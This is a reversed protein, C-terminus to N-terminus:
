QNQTSHMLNSCDKCKLSCKETLMLDISDVKLTTDKNKHALVSYMYLDIKQKFRTESWTLESCKKLDIELKSFIFDCDYIFQVGLENLQKRIFPFNLDVAILVPIDIYNEQIQKPSIVDIENIKKGWRHMNNDSMAIVNINLNKLATLTILGCNGTGFIIVGKKNKLENLTKEPNEVPYPSNYIM